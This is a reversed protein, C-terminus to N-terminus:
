MKPRFNKIVQLVKGSILYESMDEEHIFIPPYINQSESLLVFRKHVDDKYFRKINAAGNIVSVVYDGTTAVKDDADVIVYDGEEIKEGKVNAENMSDGVAELAFINRNKRLISKSVPLYGLLNEEALLTAEGCNVKGLVPINIVTISVSEAGKLDSVINREGTLSLLKKKRLQDIHHKVKQPHNIGILDGIERLSFKSLDQTQAIQLINRQIEHLAMPYNYCHRHGDTLVRSM